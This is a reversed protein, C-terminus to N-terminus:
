TRGSTNHRQTTVPNQYTLITTRAHATHKRGSPHQLSKM